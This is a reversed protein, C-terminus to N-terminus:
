SLSITNLTFSPPEAVVTAVTSPSTPNNLKAAPLNAIPPVATVAVAASNFIISPSVLAALTVNTSASPKTILSAPVIFCHKALSILVYTVDEIVDTPANADPEIALPKPVIAVALVIVVLAAIVPPEKTVPEPEAVPSTLDM